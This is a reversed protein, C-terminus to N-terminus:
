VYKGLETSKELSPKRDSYTHKNYRTKFETDSIGLYIKTPQEPIANNTKVEVSYVIQQHLM